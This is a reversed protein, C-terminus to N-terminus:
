MVHKVQVVLISRHCVALWFQAPSFLNTGTALLHTPRSRKHALITACFELHLLQSFTAVFNWYIIKPGKLLAVNDNDNSPRAWVVSALITLTGTKNVPSFVRDDRNVTRAYLGITLTAVNIKVHPFNARALQEVRDSLCWALNQLHILRVATKGSALVDFWLTYGALLPSMSQTICTCLDNGAGTCM